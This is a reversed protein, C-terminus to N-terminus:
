RSLMGDMCENLATEWHPMEIGYLRSIKGTDLKSYAPRRAKTPYQATSIAYVPVAPGGRAKSAAMIARAFGCWNTEGASVLHFIGFRPDSAPASTVTKAIRV